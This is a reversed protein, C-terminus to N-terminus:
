DPQQLPVAVLLKQLLWQREREVQKKKCKKAYLVIVCNTVRKLDPSFTLKVRIRRIFIQWGINCSKRSAIYKYM